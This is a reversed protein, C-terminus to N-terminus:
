AAISLESLPVPTGVWDLYACDKEVARVTFPSMCELSSLCSAWLVKDGVKFQHNDTKVVTPQQTDVITKAADVHHKLEYVLTVWSITLRLDIKWGLVKLYKKVNASNEWGCEKFAIEKIRALRIRGKDHYNARRQPIVIPRDCTSTTTSFPLTITSHM